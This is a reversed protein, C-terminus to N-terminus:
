SKPDLPPSGPAPAIWKAQAAEFDSASAETVHIRRADVDMADTKPHAAAAADAAAQVEAREVVAVALRSRLEALGEQQWNTVLSELQQLAAKLVDVPVEDLAEAGQKRLAAEVYGLHRLVSRANPHRKLLARLQSGILEVRAEDLGRVARSPPRPPPPAPEVPAAPDQLVVHVNIGRRELRLHHGLLPLWRKMALQDATAAETGLM